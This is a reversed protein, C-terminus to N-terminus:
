RTTQLPWRGRLLRHAIAYVGVAVVWSVERPLGAADCVAQAGFYAGVTVPITAFTALPSAPKTFVQGKGELVTLQEKSLLYWPGSSHQVLRRADGKQALVDHALKCLRLEIGTKAHRGGTTAVQRVFDRDKESPAWTVANAALFDSWRRLDDDATTPTWSASFSPQDIPEPAM